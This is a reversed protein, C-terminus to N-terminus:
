RGFLCDVDDDDEIAHAVIPKKRFSVFRIFIQSM